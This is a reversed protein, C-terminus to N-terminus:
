AHFTCSARSPLSIGVHSCSTVQRGATCAYMAPGSYLPGCGWGQLLQLSFWWAGCAPAAQLVVGSVGKLWTACLSKM